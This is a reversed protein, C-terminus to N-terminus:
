DPRETIEELIPYRMEEEIAEKDEEEESNPNNEVRIHDETGEENDPDTIQINSKDQDSLTGVYIEDNPRDRREFSQPSLNRRQMLNRIFSSNEVSNEISGEAKDIYLDMSDGEHSCHDSVHSQHCLDMKAKGTIVETLM